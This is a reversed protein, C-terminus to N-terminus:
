GKIHSLNALIEDVIKRLRKDKELGERFRWGIKAVAFHSLGTEKAQKSTM